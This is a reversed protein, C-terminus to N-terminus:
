ARAPGDRAPQRRRQAAGHAVAVAVPRSRRDPGRVTQGVDSAVRAIRRRSVEAVAALRGRTPQTAEGGDLVTEVAFSRLVAAAGGDHDASSHTIVLVDLRRVGADRLRRVVPGGPPGADVLLAHEGHQV